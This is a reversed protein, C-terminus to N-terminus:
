APDEAPVAEPAGYLQRARAEFASVMRRQARYFLSGILRNLLRSRFEFDVQFDILCRGDPQSQFRWRNSMRRFPGGLPAVAIWSPREFSVRSAFTERILKFGIVLDADFTTERRNFVRAAKCWPLFEPYRDVGLVLDFLQEASYPLLRRDSHQPM